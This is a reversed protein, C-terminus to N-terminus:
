KHMKTIGGLLKPLTVLEVLSGAENAYSINQNTKLSFNKQIAFCNQLFAIQEENLPEKVSSIGYNNQLVSNDCSLFDLVESFFGEGIKLSPNESLFNMFYNSKLDKSNKKNYFARFHNIDLGREFFLGKVIKHLPRDLCYPDDSIGYTKKYQSKLDLVAKEDIPAGFEKKSDIKEALTKCPETLLSVYVSFQFFSIERRGSIHNSLISRDPNKVKANDIFGFYAAVNEGTLKRERIIKKLNELLIKKAILYNM